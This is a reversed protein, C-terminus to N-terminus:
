ILKIFRGHKYDEVQKFGELLCLAPISFGPNYLRMQQWLIDTTQAIEADTLRKLYEGAIQLEYIIYETPMPYLNKSIFEAMGIQSFLISPQATDM